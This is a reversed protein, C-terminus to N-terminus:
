AADLQAAFQATKEEESQHQLKSVLKSSTAKKEEEAGVTKKTIKIM